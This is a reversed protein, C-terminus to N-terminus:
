SPIAFVLVHRHRHHGQLGGRLSPSRVMRQKHHELICKKKPNRSPISQRPHILLKNFWFCACAFFTSEYPADLQVRDEIIWNIPGPLFSPPPRPDTVVQLAPGPIPMTLQGTLTLLLIGPRRATFRGGGPHEQQVAVSDVHGGTCQRHVHLLVQFHHARLRFYELPLSVLATSAGHIPIM